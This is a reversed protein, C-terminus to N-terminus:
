CSPLLLTLQILTPTIPTLSNEGICPTLIPTLLLSQQCLVLSHNRKEVSKNITILPTGGHYEYSDIDHWLSRCLPCMLREKRKEQEQAWTEMCSHHLKNNCGGRCIVLTEGPEMTQLCLSINQSPICYISCTQRLYLRNIPYNFHRDVLISVCPFTKYRCVFLARRRM